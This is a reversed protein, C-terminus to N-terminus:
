GYPQQLLCPLDVSSFGKKDTEDLLLCHQIMETDEQKTRRADQRATHHTLLQTHPAVLMRTSALSGALCGVTGAVAGGAGGGGCLVVHGSIDMTNFEPSGQQLVPANHEKQISGKMRAHKVSANISAVSHTVCEALDAQNGFADYDGNAYLNCKLLRSFTIACTIM